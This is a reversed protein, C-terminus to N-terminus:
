FVWFRRSGFIDTSARPGELTLLHVTFEVSEALRNVPKEFGKSFM